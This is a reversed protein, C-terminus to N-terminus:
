LTYFRADFEKKFIRFHRRLKVYNKSVEKKTIGLYAYIMESDIIIRNAKIIKHIKKRYPKFFPSLRLSAPPKDRKFKIGIDGYENIYNKKLLELILANTQAGTVPSLMRYLDNEDSLVVQIIEKQVGSLTKLFENIFIQCYREKEEDLLPITFGEKLVATNIATEFAYNNPFENEHVVTWETRRYLSIIQKMKNYLTYSTSTLKKFIKLKGSVIEERMLQCAENFVDAGSKVRASLWSLEKNAWGVAKSRIALTMAYYEKKEDENGLNWYDSIDSIM